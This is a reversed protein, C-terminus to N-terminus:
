ITKECRAAFLILASGGDVGMTCRGSRIKSIRMLSWGLSQINWIGRSWSRKLLDRERGGTSGRGIWVSMRVPFIVWHSRRREAGGCRWLRLIEMVCSARACCTSATSTIIATTKERKTRSTPFTTLLTCTAISVNRISRILPKIEAESSETYHLERKCPLPARPLSDTHRFLGRWASRHSTTKARSRHGGSRSLLNTHKFRKLNAHTRTTDLRPQSPMAQM